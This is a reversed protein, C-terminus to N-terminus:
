PSTMRAPAAHGERGGDGVWASPGAKGDRLNFIVGIDPVVPSAWDTRVTRELPGFWASFAAVEADSLAQRRFVLVGYRAWLARLTEVTEPQPTEWLALGTVEYALTPHLPRTQLNADPNMATRRPPADPIIWM